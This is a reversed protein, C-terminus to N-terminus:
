IKKRLEVTLEAEHRERVRPLMVDPDITIIELNDVTGGLTRDNVLEKEVYGLRKLADDFGGNAAKSVVRIIFSMLYDSQQISAPSTTVRGPWVFCCPFTSPKTKRGEYVAAFVKTGTEDVLNTLKTKLTSRVTNYTKIWSLARQVGL